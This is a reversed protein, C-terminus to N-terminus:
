VDLWEDDECRVDSSIHLRVVVVSYGVTIEWVVHFFCVFFVSLSVVCVYWVNMKVAAGIEVVGMEWRTGVVGVDNVGWM